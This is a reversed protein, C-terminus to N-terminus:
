SAEDDAGGPSRYGPRPLLGRFRQAALAARLLFGPAHRALFYRPIPQPQRLELALDGMRGDALWYAFDRGIVTNLALGRGNCAQVAYLDPAACVLRPLLDQNLWAVGQWVYELPTPRYSPLMSQLRRNVKSDIYGDRRVDVPVPYATILRGAPEYRISFVDPELDTLAQRQPLIRARMESSLPQTAVQTVPMPLITKALAPHLQANGGNACLVVIRAQVSGRATRVQWGHAERSLGTVPSNTFLGAGLRVAERGLLRAYALPNLAGGSPDFLAARYGRCGSALRTAQADLFTIDPRIAQWDEVTAKLVAAAASGRAPALFGSQTAGCSDRESGILEFTYNAAGAVLQLLKAARERGLRTQVSAPAHRTLQPVVLGASRGTAGSGVEQAEVVIAKVGRDALHLALSLGAVGAGVIAIEATHAGTLEPRSEDPPASPEWVTVASLKGDSAKGAGAGGGMAANMGV